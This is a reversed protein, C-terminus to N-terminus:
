ATQRKTFEEAARIMTDALLQYCSTWAQQLEPNWDQGLGRELTWLLANGVLAYHEPKTGYGIHRIALERIDETLQDLRDLRMIILNVMDILKRAQEERPVTFLRRAEPTEFFLKDYFLGGVTEADIRMM